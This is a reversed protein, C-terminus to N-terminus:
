VPFLHVERHLDEPVARLEQSSRLSKVTQTSLVRASRHGLTKM